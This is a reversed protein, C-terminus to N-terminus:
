TLRTKETIDFGSDTNILCSQSPKRHYFRGRETCSLKRSNDKVERPKEWNLQCKRVYNVGQLNKRHFDKARLCFDKMCFINECCAMASSFEPM